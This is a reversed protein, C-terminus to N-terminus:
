GGNPNSPIPADRNAPRFQRATCPFLAQFRIDTHGKRQHLLLALTLFIIDKVMFDDWQFHIRSSLGM